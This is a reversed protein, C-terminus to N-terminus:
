FYFYMCEYSNTCANPDPQKQMCEKVIDIITAATQPKSKPFPFDNEAFGDEPDYLFPEQPSDIEDLVNDIDYGNEECFAEFLGRNKDDIPYEKGMQKYYLGINKCIRKIEDEVETAM